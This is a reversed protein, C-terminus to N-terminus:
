RTGRKLKGRFAAVKRQLASSTLAVYMSFVAMSAVEKVRLHDFGEVLGAFPFGLQPILNRGVYGVTSVVGAMFGLEIAIRLGSKREEEVDDMDPFVYLDLLTSTLAALVIGVVSIWFIDAVKLLRIAVEGM